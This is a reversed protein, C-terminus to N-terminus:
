MKRWLRWWWFDKKRNQAPFHAMKPMAKETHHKGTKRHPQKPKDRNEARSDLSVVKFQGSTRTCITTKIKTYPGSVFQPSIWRTVVGEWLSLQSSSWYGMHGRTWSVKEQVHPWFCFSAFIHQYAIIQKRQTFHKRQLQASTASARNQWKAKITTFCLLSYTSVLHQLPISKCTVRTHILSGRQYCAPELSNFVWVTRQLYELNINRYLKISMGKSANTACSNVEGNTFLLNQKFWFPHSGVQTLM